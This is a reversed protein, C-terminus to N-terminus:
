YLAILNAAASQPKLLSLSATPAACGPSARDNGASLPHFHHWGASVDSFPPAATGAREAALHHGYLLESFRVALPTRVADLPTTARDIRVPRILADPKLASIQQSGCEALMPQRGAAFQDDRELRIAPFDDNVDIGPNGIRPPGLGVVRFDAAQGTVGRSRGVRYKHLDSSPHDSDERVPLHIEADHCPVLHNGDVFHRTWSGPPTVRHLQLRVIGTDVPQPDDSTRDSHRRWPVSKKVAGWNPLTETQVDRGKVPRENETERM